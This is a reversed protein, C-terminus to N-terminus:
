YYTSYYVWPEGCRDVQPIDEYKIACSWCTKASSLLIFIRSHLESFSLPLFLVRSRILYILFTKGSSPLNPQEGPREGDVHWSLIEGIGPNRPETWRSNLLYLNCYSIPILSKMLLYILYLLSNGKQTIKKNFFFNFNSTWSFFWSDFYNKFSDSCHLYLKPLILLINPIFIQIFIPIDNKVVVSLGMM